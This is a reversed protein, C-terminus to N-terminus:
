HIILTLRQEFTRDSSESPSRDYERCGVLAAHYLGSCPFWELLIEETLTRTTDNKLPLLRCTVTAIQSAQPAHSDCTDPIGM